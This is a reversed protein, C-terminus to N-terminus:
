PVARRQHNPARQHGLERQGPLPTWPMHGAGKRLQRYKVGEVINWGDKLRDISEIRLLAFAQGRNPAGEIFMPLADPNDPVAGSGDESGSGSADVTGSGNSTSGGGNSTSGGSEVPIMEGTEADLIPVGSEDVLVAQIEAQENYAVREETLGTQEQQAFWTTIYVQHVVFGMTLIGFWIFTWGVGGMIRAALSRDPPSSPAEVPSETITETM